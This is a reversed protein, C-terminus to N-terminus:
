KSKTYKIRPRKLIIMRAGKDEPSCEKGNEDVFVQNIISVSIGDKRATEMTQLAKKDYSRANMGSRKPPPHIGCKLSM